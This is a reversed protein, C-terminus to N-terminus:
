ASAAIEANLPKSLIGRAKGLEITVSYLLKGESDNFYVGDVVKEAYYAPDSVLSIPVVISEITNRNSAKLAEKDIADFCIRYDETQIPRKM